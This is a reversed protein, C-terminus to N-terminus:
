VWTEGAKDVEMKIKIHYLEIEPFYPSCKVNKNQDAFFGGTSSDSKSTCPKGFARHTRNRKQRQTSFVQNHKFLRSLHGLTKLSSTEPLFRAVVWFKQVGLIKSRRIINRTHTGRQGQPQPIIFFVAIAFAQSHRYRLVRERVFEWLAMMPLHRTPKSSQVYCIEPFTQSPIMKPEHESVRPILPGESEEWIGPARVPKSSPASSSLLLQVCHKATM